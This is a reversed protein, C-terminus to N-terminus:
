IPSELCYAHRRWAGDKRVCWEPAMLLHWALLHWTCKYSWGSHTWHGTPHALGCGPHQWTFTDEGHHRAPWGRGLGWEKLPYLQPLRRQRWIPIFVLVKETRNATTHGYLTCKHKQVYNNRIHPKFSRKTKGEWALSINISAGATGGEFSNKIQWNYIYLICICDAIWAVDVM